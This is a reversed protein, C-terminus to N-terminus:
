KRDTGKDKQKELHILVAMQGQRSIELDLRAEINSETLSSEGEASKVM